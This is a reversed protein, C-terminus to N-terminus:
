SEVVDNRKGTSLLLYPASDEFVDVVSGIGGIAVRRGIAAIAFVSKSHSRVRAPNQLNLPDNWFSIYSENGVSILANEHYCIQQLTERRELCCTVSRSPVHITALFGGGDFGGAISWWHKDRARCSSIWREQKPLDQSLDICDVRKDTDTDWVELIGDEGGAILLNSNPVLDLSHLYGGNKTKYTGVLEGSEINWKYVGFADGAAGYLYPHQVVFENVEVSGSASPYPRFQKQINPAGQRSQIIKKLDGEWDLVVVGVHGM